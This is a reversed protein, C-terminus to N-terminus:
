FSPSVEEIEAPGYAMHARFPGFRIPVFDGHDDRWRLMAAVPDQGYERMTGSLLPGKPGETSARREYDIARQPPVPRPTDRGRRPASEPHGVPAGTTM